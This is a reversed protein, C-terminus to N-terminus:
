ANVQAMGKASRGRRLQRAAPLTPECGVWSAEGKPRSIYGVACGRQQKTGLPRSEAFGSLGAFGTVKGEKRGSLVPAHSATVFANDGFYLHDTYLQLRCKVLAVAQLRQIM